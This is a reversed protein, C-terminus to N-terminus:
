VAHACSLVAHGILMVSLCSLACLALCDLCARAAFQASWDLTCLACCAARVDGDGDLAKFSPPQPRQFYKADPGKLQLEWRDMPSREADAISRLTSHLAAHGQISKKDFATGWQFTRSLDNGTGLPMIGVAPHPEINSRKISQM